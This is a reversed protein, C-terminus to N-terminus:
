NWTTIFVVYGIIVGISSHNFGKIAPCLHALHNVAGVSNVECAVVACSLKELCFFFRRRMDDTPLCAATLEGLLTHARLLKGGDCCTLAVERGRLWATPTCVKCLFGSLFLRLCSLGGGGRSPPLPLTIVLWALPTINTRRSHHLQFLITFM